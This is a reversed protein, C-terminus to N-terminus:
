TIVFIRASIFAEVTVANGDITIARSGDPNIKKVTGTVGPAINSQQLFDLAGSTDEIEEIIRSVTFSSGVGINALAEHDPQVYASGPIPNGHPCTTPMNMLKFIADEVEPSLVHEWKCAEHHALSWSLGLTDSLFREAIRHRRVVKAALTEGKDTLNIKNAVLSVLDESEMRHIMESVSPRSVNLREAIRAQIVEFNDERLEYICECYEEFAPHHEATLTM